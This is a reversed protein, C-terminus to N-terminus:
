PTSSVVGIDSDAALVPMVALRGRAREHAAAAALDPLRGAEDAYLLLTHRRGDLLEFLRVRSRWRARRLGRCDPAREGPRPGGDLAEVGAGEGVVPSDPHAVLLQAERLLMRAPDGAEFGARAHRVTRGVVEEDVPRREADYSDLLGEAAVGEVALAPRWALAVADQIGTNM